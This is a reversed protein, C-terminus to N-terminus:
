PGRKDGHPGNMRDLKKRFKSSRTKLSNRSSFSPQPHWSWRLPTYGGAEKAAQDAANNGASIRTQQHRTRKCKMCGPTQAVSSCEPPTENSSIDSRNIVTTLLRTEDLVAM